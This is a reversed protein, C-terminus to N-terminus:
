ASGMPPRVKITVYVQGDRVSVPYRTLPRPPPGSVVRGERDYKGKHCPCYWAHDSTPQWTILCGLHTCVASFARVEGNVDLVAVHGAPLNVVVGGNTPIQSRAIVPVELVKEAPVEPYLFAFFRAAFGGLALLGAAALVLNALFDRRKLGEESEAKM